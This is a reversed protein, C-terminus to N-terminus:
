LALDREVNQSCSLGTLDTSTESIQGENSYYYGRLKWTTNNQPAGIVSFSYELGTLSLSRSNEGLATAYDLTLLIKAGEIPSKLSVKGKITQRCSLSLKKFEQPTDLDVLDYNLIQSYTLTAAIYSIVLLSALKLYKDSM